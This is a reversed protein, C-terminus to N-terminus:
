WDYRDSMLTAMMLELPNSAKSTLVSKIIAPSFGSVLMTGNEDFTTPSQEYEGNLNWFIIEPRKYGAAEYEHNIMDLATIKASQHGRQSQNFQMDSFILIKTPMAEKPIENQRAHDLIIRFTHELDTTGGWPAQRIIEFKKALSKSPDVEVFRPVDDFTIFKNAFIGKTREAVYLGLSIAIQLCSISSKRCALDNMSYSTDIVALVNETSGEMYDPLAKWQAEAIKGDGSISGLITYPFIAGANIKQDGTELGEKYKSFEEPARREFAKSYISMAMSPVKGFEISSFQKACMATEVVNTLSVIMKRYQKPTLGYNKTFWVSVPGKRPMWKAALANKDLLAKGIVGLIVQDVEPAIGILSFLDDWRGVEPIKPVIAAALSPDRTIVQAILKRFTDREGAGGRIDRAWLLTRVAIDLDEIVAEEMLDSLYVGRASALRSFLDLNKCLSTNHTAMGNTTQTISM